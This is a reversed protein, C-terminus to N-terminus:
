YLVPPAAAAPLCHRVFPRLVVVAEQGRVARAVGGGADGVGGWALGVGAQASDFTM